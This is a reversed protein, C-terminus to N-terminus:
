ERWGGIIKMHTSEDIGLGATLVHHIAMYEREMWRHMAMSFSFDGLLHM